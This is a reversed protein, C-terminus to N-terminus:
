YSFLCFIYKRSMENLQNFLWCIQNRRRWHNMQHFAAILLINWYFAMFVIAQLNEKWNRLLESNTFAYAICISNLLFCAISAGSVITKYRSTSVTLKGLKLMGAEGSMNQQGDYDFPIIGLTTACRLIWHFSLLVSRCIMEVLKFYKEFYHFSSFEFKTVGPSIVHVFRHVSDVFKYVWQTLLNTYEPWLNTYRTWM